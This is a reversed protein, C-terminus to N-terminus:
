HLGHKEATARAWKKFLTGNPHYRQHRWARQIAIAKFELDAAYCVVDVALTHYEPVDTYSELLLQEDNHDLGDRIMRYCETMYAGPGVREVLDENECFFDDVLRAATKARVHGPSLSWQLVTLIARLVKAYTSAPHGKLPTKLLADYSQQFRGRGHAYRLYSPGNWTNERPTRQPKNSNNTNMRNNQRPIRQPKNSNNTNTRNNQRPIRKPVSKPRAM